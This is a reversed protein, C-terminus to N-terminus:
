SVSIVATASGVGSSPDIVTDIEMAEDAKATSEITESTVGGGVAAPGGVSSEMSGTDVTDTTDPEVSFTAVAQSTSPVAAATGSPPQTDTPTTSQTAIVAKQKRRDAAAM